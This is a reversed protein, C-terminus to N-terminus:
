DEALRRGDRALSVVIGGLIAPDVKVNVKVTQVVLRGVWRQHRARRFPSGFLPAAVVHALLAYVRQANDNLALFARIMDPLVFLRRKSAVLKVFNATIGGFGYITLPHRQRAKM